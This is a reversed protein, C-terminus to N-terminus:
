ILFCSKLLLLRYIHSNVQQILGEPVSNTNSYIAVFWVNKLIYIHKCSVALRNKLFADFRLLYSLALHSLCTM